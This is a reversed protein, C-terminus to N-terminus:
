TAKPITVTLVGDQYQSHMKTSDVPGPLTFARQFTSSYREQSTIQGNDASQQEQGHTDGAISLVQGDVNVNLDGDKLGPIAAKVVYNNGQEDLTVNGVGPWSSDPAMGPSGGIGGGLAQNMQAQMQMMDAHMTAWPDWQGRDAIQATRDDVPIMLGATKAEQDALRVSLQHAYYTQAGVAGVLAIMGAGILTKKLEPKMM